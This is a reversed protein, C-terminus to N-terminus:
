FITQLISGAWWILGILAFAGWVGRWIQRMLHRTRVEPVSDRIVAMISRGLDHEAEPHEALLEAVEQSITDIKLEISNM